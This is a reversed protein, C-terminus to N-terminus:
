PPSFRVSQPPKSLDGVGEEEEGSTLRKFRDSGPPVFADVGM